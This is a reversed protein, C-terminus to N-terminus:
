ACFLMVDLSCSAAAAPSGRSCSLCKQKWAKSLGVCACFRKKLLKEGANYMTIFNDDVELFLSEEMENTGVSTM